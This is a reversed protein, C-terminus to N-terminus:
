RMDLVNSLHTYDPEGGGRGGRVLHAFSMRCAKSFGFDILKLHDSGMKDYLFNELKLDRHVIGNNHLYNVALLMQRVAEAADYESFRKKETVRDFLEKGEMCEMVLYLHHDAEYRFEGGGM